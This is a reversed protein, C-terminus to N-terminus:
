AAYCSLVGNGSLSTLNLFFRERTITDSDRLINVAITKSTEGANFSLRGSVAQYDLGNRATDDQTSYNITVAQNPNGYRKVTFLVQKSGSAPEIIGLDEIIFIPTSSNKIEVIGQRANNGSDDNWSGNTQLFAFDQVNNDNNPQGGEWNTYTSTEGSIWRFTGETQADNFGIWVAQGAFLGALFIQEERNNITVLNGGYSRAETQAIDWTSQGGLFYISDGLTYIQQGILTPM